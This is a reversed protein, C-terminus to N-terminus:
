SLEGLLDCNRCHKSIGMWEECYCEAKIFAKAKELKNELEDVRDIFVKYNKPIYYHTSPGGGIEVESGCTECTKM